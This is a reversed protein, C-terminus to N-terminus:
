EAGIILRQESDFILLSTFYKFKAFTVVVFHCVKTTPLLTKEFLSSKFLKVKDLIVNATVESFNIVRGMKM